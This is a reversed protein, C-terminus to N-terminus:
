RTEDSTGMLGGLQELARMWLMRVAGPSRGMRAAINNSRQLPSM